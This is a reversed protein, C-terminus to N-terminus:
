HQNRDKTAVAHKVIINTHCYSVATSALRNTLNTVVTMQEMVFGDCLSADDMTVPLSTGLAPGTTTPQVPLFQDM